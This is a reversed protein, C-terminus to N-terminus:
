RSVLGNDAAPPPFVSINGRVVRVGEYMEGRVGRVGEYRM